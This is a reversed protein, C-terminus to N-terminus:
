CLDLPSCRTPASVVNVSADVVSVYSEGKENVGVMLEAMYGRMTEVAEKALVAHSDGLDDRYQLALSTHHLVAETAVNLKQGSVVGNHSTEVVILSSSTMFFLVILLSQSVVCWFAFLTLARVVFCPCLHVLM